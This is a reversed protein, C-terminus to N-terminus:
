RERGEWGGGRRPAKDEVQGTIKHGRRGGVDSKKDGLYIEAGPIDWFGELASRSASAMAARFLARATTAALPCDRPRKCGVKEPPTAPPTVLPPDEKVWSVKRSSLAM